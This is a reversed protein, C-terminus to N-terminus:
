WMKIPIDISEQFRFGNVREQRQEKMDGIKRGCRWVATKKTTKISSISHASEVMNAFDTLAQVTDLCEKLDAKSTMEFPEKVKLKPVEVSLAISKGAKKALVNPMGHNRLWLAIEQLTDMHETANPFILIVSGEQTKHYMYVDGLRTKYHPWWGSSTKSTRMDLTPYYEQQFQLYKNFFANADQDINAAPPKKAKTIAQELQQSRVRSLVDDKGDFYAKCDEYSLFHEYEQADHDDQHYKKPCFIFIEFEQWEGRKQGKEGRLQYRKHQDPMAIADVKDEILLAVRKGDIELIITIDSEGLDLETRSLEADVVKFKKGAYPTKEAGVQLVRPRRCHIGSFAPGHRTRKCNFILM